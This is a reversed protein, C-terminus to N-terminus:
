WYCYRFIYQIRCFGNLYMADIYDTNAANNMYFGGWSIIYDSNDVKVWLLFM